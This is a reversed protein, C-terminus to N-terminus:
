VFPFQQYKKNINVLLLLIQEETKSKDLKKFFDDFITITEEFSTNRFSNKIAEYDNRNQCSRLKDIYQLESTKALQIETRKL